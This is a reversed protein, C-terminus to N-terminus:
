LVRINLFTVELFNMTIELQFKSTICDFMSLDPRVIFRSRIQEMTVSPGDYLSHIDIIFIQASFFLAVKIIPESM